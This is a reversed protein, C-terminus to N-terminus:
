KGKNNITNLPYLIINGYKIKSLIIAIITPGIIGLALGLIFNIYFNYIGLKFLVIRIGASFTTHMLYISFTYKSLENYIKINKLQESISKIIAISAFIGYVALIFKIINKIENNIFSNKVTVCYAITIATFFIFNILAKGIKIDKFTNKTLLVGLYFYIGYQLFTNIAYIHTDFFISVIHLVIFVTGLVKVNNKFIKEIIPILLFIFFLTYLFWFPSIPNTFINLIDQIGKQSNVSSSFMMNIFVYALYFIFYPVGLNILKKKVFQLYERKTNIKTYKGYLYGSLCMFLPMHFIYIYSNIYYYLNENWSINAKNLGQLLHGIVVLFCAFLKTYDVWLEREKTKKTNEVDKITYGHTRTYLRM